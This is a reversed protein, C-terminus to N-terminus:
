DGTDLPTEFMRSVDERQLLKVEHKDLKVRLYGEIQWSDHMPLISLPYPRTMSHLGEGRRLAEMLDHVRTLHVKIEM